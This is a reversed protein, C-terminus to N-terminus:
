PVRPMEDLREVRVYLGDSPELLVTLTGPIVPYGHINEDRGVTHAGLSYQPGFAITEADIEGNHLARRALLGAMVLMLRSSLRFAETRTVLIDQPDDLNDGVPHCGSLSAQTEELLALAECYPRSFFATEARDTTLGSGGSGDVSHM